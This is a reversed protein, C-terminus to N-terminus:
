TAIIYTNRLRMAGIHWIFKDLPWRKTMPDAVIKISIIFEVKIESRERSFFHKFFISAPRWLTSTVGGGISTSRMWWQMLCPHFELDEGKSLRIEWSESYKNWFKFSFFIILCIYKTFSPFCHTKVWCVFSWRVM